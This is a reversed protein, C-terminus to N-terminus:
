KKGTWENLGRETQPPSASVGLLELAEGVLYLSGAILRFPEDQTLRFAEALSHCVNISRDPHRAGCVVRLEEPIATRASAVPVLCVAKAAPFLADCMAKWDKDALVGLIMAPRRGSFHRELAALLSEVGAPNHAGDVLNTQGRPGPVTQLRGPWHVTRLGETIAGPPAPVVGALQHVTAVAVAANLRQHEGLLPLELRDLPPRHAAGPEVEVLQSGTTAAVSRIVSLADTAQTATIVPVSPKLIGAKEGAIQALTHGLWKEHDFAINTIVSALPTVINTADLRGGMGTEWIVVDCGAAAFHRLAMMTVVEFFTPQHDRPFEELLAKVATVGAIVEAETMLQRNVQIREGFSVLHPSTFLGVRLGAARYISELMACTSGKGNTGAVHIFRLQDQPNGALAALRRTNELGFKLGYLQLDYLFQIAEAYTM